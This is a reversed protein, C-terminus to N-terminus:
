TRGKCHIHARSPPGAKEGVVKGDRHCHTRARHHPGAQRLCLWRWPEVLSSFTRTRSKM